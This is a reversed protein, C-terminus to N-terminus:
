GDALSWEHLRSSVMAATITTLRETFRMLFYRDYIQAIKAPDQGKERRSIIDKKIWPTELVNILNEPDITPNAPPRWFARPKRKAWAILETTNMDELWNEEIPTKLYPIFYDDSSERYKHKRRGKVLGGGILILHREVDESDTFQMFPRTKNHKKKM